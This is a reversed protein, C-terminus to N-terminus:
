RPRSNTIRPCSGPARPSAKPSAGSATTTSSASWARCACTRAGTTSSKRSRTSSSSASKRSWWFRRWAKPSSARARRSSRGPCPSRTSASGSTARRRARRHGPRGAGADHRRLGQRHHHHGAARGALGLRPPRPPQRACLRARCLGQLRAPPSGARPHRRALPHQPRGAAPRFGRAARDARPASRYGGLRRIRDRRHRVQLRGLLRLLAVHGLRAPRTSTSRCARRICCRYAAPRSYTSARTPSRPPSPPTTTAPLCWCAATSGPAPPTPTSSCTAAVTSARAGQRVVHRVRRRVQRGSVPQAAAHGLDLDRRPGRERRAPFPHPQEALHKKARWLAQDFSGIPSGRYGSIFGATNLGAALDRARQLMPLRVLAQTGTMFARGRDLTYKDDLTIEHPKAPANM